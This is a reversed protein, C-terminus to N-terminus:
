PQYKTKFREVATTIRREEQKDASRAVFNLPIQTDPLAFRMTFTGDPRLRVQNNGLLVEADPETRGYVILETGIEFFFNRGRDVRESAGPFLHQVNKESAGQKLVMEASAGLLIKKLFETRSMGQTLLDSDFSSSDERGLLQWRRGNTGKLRRRVRSLLPFMRAYYARIDAESLYIKRRRTKRKARTAAVRVPDVRRRRPRDEAM